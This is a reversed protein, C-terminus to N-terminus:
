RHIITTFREASDEVVESAGPLYDNKTMQRLALRVLPFPDPLRNFLPLVRREKAFLAAKFMAEVQSLTQAQDANGQCLEQYLALGPFVLRELKYRLARNRPFSHHACLDRYRSLISDAMASGRQAGYQSSLMNRWINMFPMRKM